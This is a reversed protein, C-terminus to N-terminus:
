MKSIRCSYEKTRKSYNIGVLLINDTFDLLKGTYKKDVIQNIATDADEDWKLEVIMAPNNGREKPIFAIDAFGKGSPFERVIMYYKRATYYSMQIALALSNEDNYELISAYDQHSKEIMAAVKDSDGDWTAHLLEDSERIADAIESWNGVKIASDFVERVEENPIFAEGTRSDFGLYGMHILATIVDDKSTFSTLDNQFTSVDVSCSEGALMKIVSSKLGKEDLGIYDNLQRFAGTNKWYSEIKNFTIAEVISNPNYMHVYSISRDPNLTEMVYGDYWKRVDEIPMDYKELYPEIEKETFGFFPALNKPSIMTYEVFNNMASEGEYRKIPLIGTIYGLAVFKKSEETKFFGRLYKLYNEILKSDNKADRIICDWEDIIIVFGIGDNKWVAEIAKPVTTIVGTIIDPYLEIFEDLVTKNMLEVPDEDSKSANLFTAMDIHLVHYKNLNVCYDESKGISLNDFLERSDCGRSYFADIMGAAMSKGFRRPRSVSYLCKEKGLSSNLIEILGTKDIYIDSNVAKKFSENGPDLYIGM